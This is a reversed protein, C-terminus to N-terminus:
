RTTKKRGTSVLHIWGPGECWSIGKHLVPLLFCRTSGWQTFNSPGIPFCWPAQRQWSPERSGKQSANKCYKHWTKAEQPMVLLRFHNRQCDSCQTLEQHKGIPHFQKRGEWHSANQLMVLIPHRGNELYWM